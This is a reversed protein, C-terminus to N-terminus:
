KGPAAPPTNSVFSNKFAVAARDADAGGRVASQIVSTALDVGSRQANNLVLWQNNMFEFFPKMAEFPNAGPSPQRGRMFERALGILDGLGGGAGGQPAGGQPAGGNDTAPATEKEQMITTLLTKVEAKVMEQIQATTPINLSKLYDFTEKQNATIAPVIKALAKDVLADEPSPESTPPIAEETKQEGPPSAVPTGEGSDIPSDRAAVEPSSLPETQSEVERQEQQNANYDELPSHGGCASCLREHQKLRNAPIKKGCKARVLEPDKKAM